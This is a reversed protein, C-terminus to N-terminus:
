WCARRSAEPPGPPPTVHVRQRLPAAPCRLRAHSPSQVRLHEQPLKQVRPDRPAAPACPTWGRGGLEESLVLPRLPDQLWGVDM